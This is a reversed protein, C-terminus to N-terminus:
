INIVFRTANCKVYYHIVNCVKGITVMCTFYMYFINVKVTQGADEGDQMAITLANGGYHKEIAKSVQQATLFLDSVEAATLDAFREVQRITSILVDSLKTLTVSMYYSIDCIRKYTIVQQRLTVHRNM